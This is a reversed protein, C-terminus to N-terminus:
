IASVTIVDPWDCYDPYTGFNDFPPSPDLRDLALADACNWEGVYRYIGFTWRGGCSPEEIPIENEDKVTLMLQVMWGAPDPVKSLRYFRHSPVGTLGCYCSGIDTDDSKEWVCAGADDRILSLIHEGNFFACCNYIYPFDGRICNGVGGGGECLEGGGVTVSFAVQTPVPYCGCDCCIKCDLAPEAM